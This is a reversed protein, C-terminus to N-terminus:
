TPGRGKSSERCYEASTVTTMRVVSAVGGASRHRRLLFLNPVNATGELAEDGCGSTSHDEPGLGHSGADWYTMGAAVPGGKLTASPGDLPHAARRESTAQSRLRRRKRLPPINPGAGTSERLM